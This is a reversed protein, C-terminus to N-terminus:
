AREKRAVWRERQAARRWPCSRFSRQKDARGSEFANISISAGTKPPSPLVASGDLFTNASVVMRESFSAEFAIRYGAVDASSRRPDARASSTRTRARDPRSRRPTSSCRKPAPAEYPNPALKNTM